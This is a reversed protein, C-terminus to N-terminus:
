MEREIPLSLESSLLSVNPRRVQEESCQQGKGKRKIGGGMGGLNYISAGWGYLCGTKGEPETRERTKRRRSTQLITSLSSSTSAPTSGGSPINALQPNLWM